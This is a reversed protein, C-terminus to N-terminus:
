EVWPRVAGRAGVVFLQDSIRHPARAADDRTRRALAARLASPEVACAFLADRHPAAALFPSGLEPALVDHLTPLLLRAGDLGDGSRAVVLPGANTEVRAFRAASSRMALNELATALAREFECSWAALESARVYRSRGEYVLVLAVSVTHGLASRCALEGGASSTGLSTTFDAPVLRPLLARKAEDWPVVDRGGTGGPLMSVLKEIAHAAASEDEGETSVLVRTLDLEVGDSLRVHQEFCDRISLEPRASALAARLLRLARGLGARGAAEEEARALEEALVARASPGELASEVIRFPDVFGYPGIRVRHAGDRAVHAADAFHALLLCGLLAGAGEVFQEDEDSSPDTEQEAWADLARALARLGGAGSPVPARPAGRHTRLFRVAAAVLPGGRPSLADLWAETSGMAIDLSRSFAVERERM